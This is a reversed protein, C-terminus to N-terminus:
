DGWGPEQHRSSIAEKLCVRAQEYRGAGGVKASRHGQQM